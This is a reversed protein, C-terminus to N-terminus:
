PYTLDDDGTHTVTIAQAGAATVTVRGNGTNTVTVAGTATSNITMVGDGTNTATLVQGNNVVNITGSGTETVSVHAGNNVVNIFGDGTITPTVDAAASGSVTIHSDLAGPDGPESDQDGAGGPGWGGIFVALLPIGIGTFMNKAASLNSTTM